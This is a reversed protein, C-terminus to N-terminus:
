ISQHRLILLIIYFGDFPTEDLSNYLVPTDSHYYTRWMDEILKNNLQKGVFPDTTKKIAKVRRSINIYKNKLSMNMNLYSNRNM